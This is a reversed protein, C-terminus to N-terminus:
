QLMFSSNYTNKSIKEMTKVKKHIIKLNKNPQLISSQLFPSYSFAQYFQRLNYFQLFLVSNEIMEPQVLFCGRKLKHKERLYGRNISLALFTYIDPMLILLRKVVFQSLEYLRYLCQQMFSFQLSRIYILVYFSNFYKKHIKAM